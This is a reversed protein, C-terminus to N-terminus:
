KELPHAAKPATAPTATPTAGPKRTFSIEMMKFEKGSKPDAGFMEMTMSDPGTRKQVERMTAPGKKIPCNYNYTWTLTKEDSSLEGTGTMMGTGMNDCWTGQFKKSVNDYGYIGFGNFPGMGPMEGAMECKMFRGDMVLTVTSTCESTMPETMEPTMWMKTKGQWVGTGKALYEHMPGPTAAQACAQMDAETMGPPLQMAHDAPKAADKDPAAPVKAPPTNAKPAPKPAEKAPQQALALTGALAFVGLCSLMRFSRNSM